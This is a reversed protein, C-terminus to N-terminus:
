SGMIGSAIAAAGLAVLVLPWFIPPMAFLWPALNRRTAIEKAKHHGVVTVLALGWFMLGLLVSAM